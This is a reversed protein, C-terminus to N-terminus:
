AITASTAPLTSSQGNICKLNGTVFAALVTALNKFNAISFSHAAGTADLWNLATSGDTFTDNLLISTIEANIQQQATPDCPYTADLAPTGTSTIALGAALQAQASAVLTAAASAVSYGSFAAELETTTPETAFYVEGAALTWDSEVTRWSLGNNSYAYGALM